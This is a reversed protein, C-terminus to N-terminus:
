GEGEDGYIGEGAAQVWVRPPQKCRGIAEGVVKVSNVRSEIIERRNEPTHRCNVSRGALNIVARAGNLCEAWSGLTRGDWHRTVLSGGEGVHPHRTLPAGLNPIESRPAGRSLVVVEYGRAILDRALLTGIFGSGGALIIRKGNM